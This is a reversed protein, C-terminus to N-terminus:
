IFLADFRQIMAAIEARTACAQPLISGNNGTIVGNEVCWSVAQRAYNSVGEGDPFAGLAAAADDVSPSGALRWLITAVQERTINSNGDFCGDYGTFIGLEAAWNAASAYWDSSSVDDFYAAQSASASASGEAGGDVVSKNQLLQAMMGRTLLEEPAFTDSGAGGMGNMVGHAVVYEVAQAYWATSAVDAFSVSVASVSYCYGESASLQVGAGLSGVSVYRCEVALQAAASSASLMGFTDSAGAGLAAAAGTAAASMGSAVGEAGAGLALQAAGASAASKTVVVNAASVGAGLAFAVKKSKGGTVFTYEAVGAGVNCVSPLEIVDSNAGAGASGSAGELSVVCTAQGDTVTQTVTAGNEAVTFSIETGTTTDTFTSTVSGDQNTQSAFNDYV